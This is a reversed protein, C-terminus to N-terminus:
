LEKYVREMKGAVKSWAFEQMVKKRGNQGLEKVYNPDDVIYDIGWSISEPYHFVKIGNKFNDINESLGGVDAAVPASGASWAELLIMGFPENRSPIAVIDCANLLVVREEDSIYGPFRVAHSIGLEHARYQMHGRMDGQGAIIFCADRRHGLVHPIAEVLLDPGKQRVLRGIFFVLPALPHIGYREKVRGADLNRQYMTPDIGNPVVDIKEGPTQYLQMLERKMTQSVTTVRDAIYGGYWEKGSIERYEWWEGFEGGNRGYETSHFTLISPRRGKLEHLADVMHWDHGHVLDFRSNEDEVTSLRQLMAMSMNHCYHLINGGPDFICRHYHVGNIEDDSSQGEGMRTFFHVEHGKRSLSEALGTVAPAQGGTRVSYM